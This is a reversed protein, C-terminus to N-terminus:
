DSISLALLQREADADLAKELEEMWPDVTIKLSSAVGIYEDGYHFLFEENEKKAM